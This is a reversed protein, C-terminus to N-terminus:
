WESPRLHVWQQEEANEDQDPHFLDADPASRPRLATIVPTPDGGLSTATHAYDLLQADRTRDARVRLWGWAIWTVLAGSIVATGLLPHKTLILALSPVAAAVVLSPFPNERSM